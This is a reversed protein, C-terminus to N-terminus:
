GKFKIKNLYWELSNFNSDEVYEFDEINVVKYGNKRFFNIINYFCEEQESKVVEYSTYGLFFPDGFSVDHVGYGENDSIFDYFNDGQTFKILSDLDSTDVCFFYDHSIETDEDYFNFIFPQM